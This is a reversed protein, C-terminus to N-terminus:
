AGRKRWACPNRRSSPRTQRTPHPPQRSRVLSPSQAGRARRPWLSAGHAQYPGLHGPLLGTQHRCHRLTWSGSGGCLERWGRPPRRRLPGPLQPQVRAGRGGSSCDGGQATRSPADHPRSPPYLGHLGRRRGLSRRMRRRVEEGAAARARAKPHPLPPCPPRPCGPQGAHRQAWPSSHLLLSLSSPENRRERERVGTVQGDTEIERM